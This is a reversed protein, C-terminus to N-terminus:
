SLKSIARTAIISAGTGLINEVIVDGINVPAILVINKLLGISEFVKDKPINKDTKIPVMNIVGNEVRVVSTLMRTPNTCETKAYRVGIGCENGVVSEVQADQLKVILACGMPCGICTLEVTELM